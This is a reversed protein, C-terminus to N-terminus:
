KETGPHKRATEDEHHYKGRTTISRVGLDGTHGHNSHSPMTLPEDNNRSSSLHNALQLLGATLFRMVPTPKGGLQSGRLGVQHTATDLGFAHDSEEDLTQALGM